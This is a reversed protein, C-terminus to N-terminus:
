KSCKYNIKEVIEDIMKPSLKDSGEYANNAKNIAECIKYADFHVQSGDRKIVYM